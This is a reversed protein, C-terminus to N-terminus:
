LYQRVFLICPHEIVQEAASLFDRQRQKALLAEIEVEGNSKAGRRLLKHAAYV